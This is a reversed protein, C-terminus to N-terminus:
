AGTAVLYPVEEEEMAAWINRERPVWGLAPLRVSRCRANGGAINETFPGYVDGLEHQQFERPEPSAIKGAKYLIRGVNEAAEAWSFEAGNDAFFYPNELASPVATDLTDILTIYARALDAVHVANWVNRGANVRGSFGHKLAFRVLAPLAMSVRKHAPNFGYVVPPIIIVIKAKSGIERAAQVIALDINRHPATPPLTDIGAPDDDSYVTESKYRGKADDTLLGTGSTQIFTAPLGQAVRQRVGTLIAEVSPLDDSSSTNITIAHQAAQTTITKIDSLNGIITKAGAKDLTAALVENRVLTTVAHGAALLNEIVHQGVYGPGLLFVSQPSTM